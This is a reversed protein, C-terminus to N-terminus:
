RKPKRSPRGAKPPALKAKRMLEAPTVDLAEAFRVLTEVSFNLRGREAKQVFRIDFGTREELDQQTLGLRARVRRLNAAIYDLYQQAGPTPM